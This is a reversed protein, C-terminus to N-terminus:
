RVFKDLAKEVFGGLGKESHAVQLEAKIEQVSKGAEAAKEVVGATAVFAEKWKKGRLAAWLAGAGGVLATAGPIWYNVLTAVTGLVGGGPNVTGDPNVGFGADLLSCGGLGLALVASIALVGILRKPGVDRVRKTSPKASFYLTAQEELEPSCDPKRVADLLKKEMVANSAKIRDTEHFWERVAAIKRKLWAIM